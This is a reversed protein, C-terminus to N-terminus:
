LLMINYVARRHWRSWENPAAKIWGRAFTHRGRCEKPSFAECRPKQLKLRERFMVLNEAPLEKRKVAYRM